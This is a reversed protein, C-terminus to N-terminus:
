EVVALEFRSYCSPSPLNSKGTMADALAESLTVGDEKSRVSVIMFPRQWSTSESEQEAECGSQFQGLNLTWIRADDSAIAQLWTASTEARQEARAIETIASGEQSAAGVGILDRAQQLNTRIAATFVRDVVADGSLEGESRVLTDTSGRQWTMGGTFVVVDFSAQRDASDVGSIPYVVTDGSWQETQVAVPGSRGFPLLDPQVVAVVGVAAAATAGVAAVTGAPTQLLSWIWQGWDARDSWKKGWSWWAFIGKREEDEKKKEPPLQTRQESVDIEGEFGFADLRSRSTTSVKLLRLVM